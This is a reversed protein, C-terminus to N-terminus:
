LGGVNRAMHEKEDELWCHCILIKCKVDRVEEEIIM